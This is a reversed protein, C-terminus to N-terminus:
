YCKQFDKLNGFPKIVIMLGYFYKYVPQFILYNKSEDDVVYEEDNLISYGNTM